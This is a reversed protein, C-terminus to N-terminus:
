KPDSFMEPGAAAGEDGSKAVDASYGKPSVGKIRANM